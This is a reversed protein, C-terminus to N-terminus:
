TATRSINNFFLAILVSFTVGTYNDNTVETGLIWNATLTRQGDKSSPIM